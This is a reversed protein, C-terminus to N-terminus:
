KKNVRSNLPLVTSYVPLSAFKPWFLLLAPQYFDGFNIFPSTQIHPSAPFVRTSTGEGELLQLKGKQCVKKGDGYDAEYFCM